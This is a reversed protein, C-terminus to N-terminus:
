DEFMRCVEEAAFWAMANRIIGDGNSEVRGSRGYLARAIEDQSYDPKGQNSLCRFHAIMSLLDEGLGEAMDKAMDLIDNKHRAFFKCTDAYYIFGNFGGDIGHRNVDEISDKGIRSVVARVLTARNPYDLIVQKLTKMAEDEMLSVHSRQPVVDSGRRPAVRGYDRSPALHGVDRYVNTISGVNAGDYVKPWLLSLM